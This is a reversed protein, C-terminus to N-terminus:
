VMFYAGFCITGESMDPNPREQVIVSPIMTRCVRIKSPFSNFWYIREEVLLKTTLTTYRKFIVAHFTRM